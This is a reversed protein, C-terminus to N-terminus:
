AQVFKDAWSGNPGKQHIRWCMDDKTKAFCELHGDPHRAFQVSVFPGAAGSNWRHWGSWKGDKQMWNTGVHGDASLSALQVRGDANYGIALRVHYEEETPERPKPKPAGQGKPGPDPGKWSGERWKIHWWESQADSWKKAWGFPEGVRDIMSRMQQTAVDVALGWGHNSMGPVAALSGRGALYENYLYVQQDYTRYSSMSGTPLLEVGRKRAEVNMANWAAAADKRLRGQAIPNLTSPDLRGNQAM